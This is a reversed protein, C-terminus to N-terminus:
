SIGLLKKYLVQFEEHSFTEGRRELMESPINNIYDNSFTRYPNKKLCSKVTKRKGWFLANVMPFYTASDISPCLEKPVLKLVASDIKPIPRFCSKSVTFGYEAEFHSQTYVTLSSFLSNGPKSVLKQAFEKQVMIVVQDLRDKFPVLWQIFKASLYYPINAVIKVKTEPNKDINRLDQKLVDGHHFTVNDFEQLRDTTMELFRHDLEIIHVKKASKALLTSLWGEGCGVEVCTDNNTVNALEITKRLINQDKMFVQGLKKKQWPKDSQKETNM